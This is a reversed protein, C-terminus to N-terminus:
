LQPIIIKAANIKQSTLGSPYYAAIYLMQLTRGGPDVRGDPENWGIIDHQFITIARITDEGCIGNENISNYKQYQIGAETMKMNALNLLFQILRVDGSLNNGNKGVSKSINAPSGTAGANIRSIDTQGSDVPKGNPDTFRVKTVNYHKGFELGDLKFDVYGSRHGNSGQGYSGVHLHPGQTAGGPRHQIMEYAETQDFIKNMNSKIFAYGETDTMGKIHFDAARKAIHLSGSNSGKIHQSVPRDGSHVRIDKNLLNSIRQLVTHLNQDSVTKVYIVNGMIFFKIM